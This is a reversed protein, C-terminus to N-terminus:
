ISNNPAKLKKLIVQMSHDFIEFYMVKSIVIFEHVVLGTDFCHIFLYIM